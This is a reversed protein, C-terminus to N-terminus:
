GKPELLCVASVTSIVLCFYINYPSRLHKKQFSRGQSSHALFTICSGFVCGVSFVYSTVGASVGFKDLVFITGIQYLFGTVSDFSFVLAILYTFKSAVIENSESYASMISDRVLDSEISDQITSKRFLVQKSDPKKPVGDGSGTEKKTISSAVPPFSLFYVLSALEILPTVFGLVFNGLNGFKEQLVGGLLFSFVCALGILASQYSM